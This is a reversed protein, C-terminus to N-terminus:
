RLLILSFLPIAHGKPLLIERLARALYPFSSSSLDSQGVQGRNALGRRKGKKREKAAKRRLAKAHSIERPLMALVSTKEDWNWFLDAMKSGDNLWLLSATSNSMRTTEGWGSSASNPMAPAMKFNLASPRVTPTSSRVVALGRGEARRFRPGPLGGGGRGDEAEVPPFVETQGVAAQLGREVGPRLQGAHKALRPRSPEEGGIPDVGMGVVQGGGLQDLGGSEPGFQGLGVQGALRM